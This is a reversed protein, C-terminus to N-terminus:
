IPSSNLAFLLILKTLDVTFWPKCTTSLSNSCKPMVSMAVISSQTNVMSRLIMFKHATTPAAKFRLTFGCHSVSMSHKLVMSSLLPLFPPVALLLLPLVPGVPLLM